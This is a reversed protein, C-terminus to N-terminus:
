PVYYRARDGPLIPELEALLASAFDKLAEGDPDLEGPCFVEVTLGSGRTTRGHSSRGTIPLKRVWREVRGEGFIYYWFGISQVLEGQAYGLRMVPTIGRGPATVDLVRTASEVKTWGGSPLCVEPSHRMNLGTRSYNMWLTLRLGPSGPDEYVRNIWDDTQAREIIDPEVPEDRGVWRGLTMPITALRAATEPRECRNVVELGADAALGTGLLGLCLTIRQLPKM